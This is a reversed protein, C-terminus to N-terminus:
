TCSTRRGPVDRANLRFRAQTGPLRLSALRHCEALVTEKNRIHDARRAVHLSKQPVWLVIDAEDGDWFGMLKVDSGCWAHSLAFESEGSFHNVLDRVFSEFANEPAWGTGM